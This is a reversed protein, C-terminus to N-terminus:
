WHKELTLILWCPGPNRILSSGRGSLRRGLLGVWDGCGWKWCSYQRKGSSGHREAKSILRLGLMLEHKSYSAIEYEQQIQCLAKFLFFFDGAPATWSKYRLLRKFQNSLPDSGHTLCVSMESSSLANEEGCWSTSKRWDPCSQPAPSLFSFQQGSTEELGISHTTEPSDGLFWHPHGFLQWSYSM